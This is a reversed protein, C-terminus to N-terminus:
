QTNLPYDMSQTNEPTIPTAAPIPNIRDNKCAPQGVVFSLWQFTDGYEQHKKRIYVVFGIVIAMASLSLMVIQTICIVRVASVSLGNPNDDSQDGAQERIIQLMNTVVLLILFALWWEFQMRTSLFFLFYIAVAFPLRLFRNTVKTEDEQVLTIFLYLTFFGLIHRAYQNERMFRQTQCGLLSELFSGSFLLYVLFLPKCLLPVINDM